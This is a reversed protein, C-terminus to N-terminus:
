LIVIEKLPKGPVEVLVRGRQNKVDILLRQLGVARKLVDTMSTDMERAIAELEARGSPSLRLTLRTETEEGLPRGAPRLITDTDLSM